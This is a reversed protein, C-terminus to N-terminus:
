GNISEGGGCASGCCRVCSGKTGAAGLPGRHRSGVSRVTQGFPDDYVGRFAFPRHFGAALPRGQTVAAVTSWSPWPIPNV